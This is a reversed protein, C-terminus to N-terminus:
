LITYYNIHDESGVGESARNNSFIQVIRPQYDRRREREMIDQVSEAVAFVQIM